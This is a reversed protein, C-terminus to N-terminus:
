MNCTSQQDTAVRAHVCCCMCQEDLKSLATLVICGLRNTPSIHPCCRAPVDLIQRKLWASLPLPWFSAHRDFMDVLSYAVGTSCTCLGPVPTDLRSDQFISTSLPALLALLMKTLLLLHMPSIDCYILRSVHTFARKRAKDLLEM